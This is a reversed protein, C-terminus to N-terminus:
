HNRTKRLKGKQNFISIQETEGDKSSHYVQINKGKLKVDEPWWFDQNEYSWMMTGTSSVATIVPGYYGCCYITGSKKDVTPKHQCSGVNVPTFNQNGTALDISHLEAGVVVYLTGEDITHPSYSNLETQLLDTWVKKWVQKNKKWGSVTFSSGEPSTKAKVTIEADSKQAFLPASSLLVAAIASYTFCKM